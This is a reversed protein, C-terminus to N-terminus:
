DSSISVGVLVYYFSLADESNQGNRGSGHTERWEAEPFDFGSLKRLDIGFLTSIAHRWYGLTVGRIKVRAGFYGDDHSTSWLPRDYM